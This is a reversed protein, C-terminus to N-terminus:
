AGEGRRYDLGRAGAGRQRAGRHRHGGLGRRSVPVAPGHAEARLDAARRFDGGAGRGGDRSHRRQVHLDPRSLARKFFDLNTLGGGRSQFREDFGGMSLYDTRRMGFCGSEYLCGFWGMSGDSFAGAAEYLRYGDDRWRARSLLSDEIEQNYGELISKNQTKPGLHFPVTAVFPAAFLRSAAHTLELIGPSLIHAGDIIVVVFDGAAGRCANNIAAVPSVSKTAVFTYRFEAGFASVDSESLPLTSGNDLAIVEYAIDQANEQYARTLSYLTNKAERQNNYFNVIVSLM